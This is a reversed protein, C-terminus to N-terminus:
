NYLLTKKKILDTYVILQPFYELEKKNFPVFFSLISSTIKLCLKEINGFTKKALFFFSYFFKIFVIFNVVFKVFFIKAMQYNKLFTQKLSKFNRNPTLNPVCRLLEYVHYIKKIFTALMKFIQFNYLNQIEFKLKLSWINLIEFQPM